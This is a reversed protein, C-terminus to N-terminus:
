GGFGTQLGKNYNIRSSADFLVGENVKAEINANLVIAQQKDFNSAMNGNIAMDNALSMGSGLTAELTKNLSKKKM